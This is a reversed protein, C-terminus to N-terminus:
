RSREEGMRAVTDAPKVQHLDQTLLWLQLSSMLTVAMDHGPSKRRELRRVRRSRLRKNRLTGRAKLLDISM